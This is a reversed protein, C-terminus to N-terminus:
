KEDIWTSLLLVCNHKECFMKVLKTIIELNWVNKDYM